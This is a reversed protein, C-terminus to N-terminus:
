IFEIVRKFTDRSCPYNGYAFLEVPQQTVQLIVLMMRKIEEPYANWDLKYFTDDITDFENTIKNGIECIVFVIGFVYLIEFLCLYIAGYDLTDM